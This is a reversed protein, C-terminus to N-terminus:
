NRNPSLWDCFFCIVSLALFGLLMVGGIRVAQEFQFAKAFGCAGLSLMVPVQVYAARKSATVAYNWRPRFFAYFRSEPQVWTVYAMGLGYLTSPLGCLLIIAIAKV